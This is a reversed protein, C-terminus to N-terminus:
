KRQSREIVQDHTLGIIGILKRRGTVGKEITLSSKSVELIASLFKILARNAKGEVPPATIRLHLVGDKFGLVENHRANPQVQVVIKTQHKEAMVDSIRDRTM